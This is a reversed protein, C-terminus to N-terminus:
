KYVVHIFQDAALGATYTAETTSFGSAIGTSFYIGNTTFFESGVILMAGAPVLFTLLPVDPNAPASAKNHLQFYRAAGALNHCMFSFVNGATAKLSKDPDAGLDSTLTPAYTNTALPKNAGAYVGDTNNEAAPALQDATRLYGAATCQLMVGEGDALVPAVLNYRAMALFNPYGDLDTAVVTGIAGTGSSGLSVVLAGAADCRLSWFQGAVLTPTDYSALAPRGSM